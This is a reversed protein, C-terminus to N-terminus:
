VCITGCSILATKKKGKAARERPWRLINTLFWSFRLVALTRIFVEIGSEGTYFFLLARKEQESRSFLSFNGLYVFLSIQRNPKRETTKPTPPSAQPFPSAKVGLREERQWFMFAQLHHLAGLIAGVDVRRSARLPSLPYEQSVYTGVHRLM